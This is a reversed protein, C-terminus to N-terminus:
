EPVGNIDGPDGWTVDTSTWQVAPGGSAVWLTYTQAQTDISFMFHYENTATGPNHFTGSFLTNGLSDQFQLVAQSPTLAMDLFFPTNPGNPARLNVNECCWMSISFQSFTDPFDANSENEFGYEDNTVPAPPLSCIGTQFELSNDGGLEFTTGGSGRNLLFDNAVGGSPITQYIQPQVGFPASGDAGLYVPSLDPNIFKRRNAEVSLDVFANPAAIWIDAVAPNGQGIYENLLGSTGQVFPGASIWGGSSPTLAVDNCYLQVTQTVCNVSLLLNSRYTGLDPAAFNASYFHSGTPGLQVTVGGGDGGTPEFNLWQTATLLNPGSNSDNTKLCVWQSLLLYNFDGIPFGLPDFLKFIGFDTGNIQILSIDYGGSELQMPYLSVLKLEPTPPPPPPQSGSLWLAISLVDGEGVSPFAADMQANNNYITSDLALRSGGNFEDLSTNFSASALYDTTNAGAQMVGGGVTGSDVTYEWYWKQQYWADAVPITVMGGSSTFTLNGNSLSGGGAITTPDFTEIDGSYPGYVSISYDDPKTFSFSNQGFNATAQGNVVASMLYGLNETIPFGGIPDQWRFAFENYFGAPNGYYNDNWYGDNKRYWIYGPPIPPAAIGLGPNPGFDWYNNYQATPWELTGSTIAWDGGTGNNNAFDNPGTAFTTHLYVQPTVTSGGITVSGDSPLLVASRDANIFQRRNATVSLDIAQNVMWVDGIGSGGGSQFHVLWPSGSNDVSGANITGFTKPQLFDNAYVQVTGGTFDISVLYHVQLSSGYFTGGEDSTYWFPSAGALWEGNSIRNSGHSSANIFFQPFCNLDTPVAPAYGGVECQFIIDASSGFQSGMSISGTINPSALEVGWVSLTLGTLTSGMGAGNAVSKVTWDSGGILQPFYFVPQTM